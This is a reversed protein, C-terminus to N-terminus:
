DNDIWFDPRKKTGRITCDVCERSSGLFGPPGPPSPLASVAYYLPPNNPILLVAVQNACAKGACYFISDLECTYPYTPVWTFPLQDSRVFIRKQQVNTAGIYGIVPESPNSICHINGNINSPQPDFISGLQETNKKLNVWFNYEDTSLAYQKVLISYRTEIKESTPEVLVIPNHDIIDQSLKATSGLIISTSFDNGFCSYIDQDPTRLVMETGDSVWQSQYKAHFQWTEQYEWRYYRTKNTADHANAYIQLGNNQITFGVSDIPPTPKITILDSAYERGDATKISLKYQRTVDLNLPPAGYRGNGLETLPYSGNQNDLVTVQAQLVPNSSTNGSLNVTRSLKFITSDQGTNITGEVVLYNNPVNIANPTYPKKCCIVVVLIVLFLILFKKKMFEKRRVEL